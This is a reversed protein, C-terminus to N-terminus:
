GCRGCGDRDLWLLTLWLAFTIICIVDGYLPFLNEGLAPTGKRQAVVEALNSLTVWPLIEMCVCHETDVAKYKILTRSRKKSQELELILLLMM